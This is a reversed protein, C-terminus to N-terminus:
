KIVCIIEVKAVEAVMRTKIEEGIKYDFRNIEIQGKLTKDQYTFPISVDQTVGHMTMKGKAVYTAGTKTVSESKFKIQAFDSVEFFDENKLHNDRKTHDTFISAANVSVDFSANEITAEDFSIDGKMGSFTGQVEVGFMGDITFKVVSEEVNISQANVGSVLGIILGLIIGAKKMPKFKIFM